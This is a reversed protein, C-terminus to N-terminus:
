KVSAFISLNSATATSWKFQHHIWNLYNLLGPANEVTHPDSHTGPMDFTTQVAQYAKRDAEDVNDRHTRAAAARVIGSRQRRLTIPFQELLR